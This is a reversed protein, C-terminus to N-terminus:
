DILLVNCFIKNQFLIKIKLFYNLFFEISQM